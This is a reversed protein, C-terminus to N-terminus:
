CTGVSFLSDPKGDIGPKPAFLRDVDEVALFKRLFWAIQELFAQRQLHSPAHQLHSIPRHPALLNAENESHNKDRLTVIVVVFFRAALGLTDLCATASVEGDAIESVTLM